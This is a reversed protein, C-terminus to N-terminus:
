PRIPGPIVQQPQITGQSLLYISGVFIGIVVAEAMRTPRIEVEIRETTEVSVMLSEGLLEHTVRRGVSFKVSTISPHQSIGFEIESAQHYHDDIPFEGRLTAIYMDGQSTVTVPGSEMQDPFVDVVRDKGGGAMEAEFQCRVNAAWLEQPKTDIAALKGGVGVANALFDVLPKIIDIPPRIPQPPLLSPPRDYGNGEELRHGSPDVYKLPNGLVYSYRNL